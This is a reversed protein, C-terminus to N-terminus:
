RRAYRRKLFRFIKKPWHQSELAIVPLETYEIKNHEIWIDLLRESVLGFVRKDIGKYESIDLRLELEFLIDLLWTLYADLLPKKMVFINFRHGSTKDMVREWAEMYEPYRELLIEKILILDREHHAHAYHSYNTEIVYHRKKPLIVDAKRLAHEITKRGAIRSKGFLPLRAAFYRRYHAMGIYDVELNKWAWYLGTLECFGPNRASIQDAVDDRLFGPISPKGVSGIFLPVYLSDEPMWYPKHAAVIIQINM